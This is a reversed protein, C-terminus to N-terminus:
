GKTQLQSLFACVDTFPRGGVISFGAKSAATFHRAGYGIHADGLLDLQAQVQEPGQKRYLPGRCGNCSLIQYPQKLSNHYSSPINASVSWGDHNGLIVAKPVKMAAIDGVLDVVEEGFDGAHM